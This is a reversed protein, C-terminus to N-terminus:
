LGSELDLIGHKTNKRPTGDYISNRSNCTFKARLCIHEGWLQLFPWGVVFIGSANCLHAQYMWLMLGKLWLDASYLFRMLHNIKKTGYEQCTTPVTKRSILFIRNLKQCMLDGGRVCWPFVVLYWSFVVVVCFPQVCSTGNSCRLPQDGRTCGITSNLVTPLNQRQSSKGRSVEM